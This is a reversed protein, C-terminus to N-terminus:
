ALASHHNALFAATCLIVSSAHSRPPKTSSLDQFENNGEFNFRNRSFTKVRGGRNKVDVRPETRWRLKQEWPPHCLVKQNAFGLKGKQTGDEKSGHGKRRKNDVKKELPM